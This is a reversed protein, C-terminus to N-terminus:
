RKDHKITIAPILLKFERQEIGRKNWHADHGKLRVDRMIKDCRRAKRDKEM